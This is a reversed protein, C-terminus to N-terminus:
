SRFLERLATRLLGKEYFDNAILRRISGVPVRRSRTISRRRTWASRSHFLADRYTAWVVKWDGKRAHRIPIALYMALMWPACRLLLQWPVSKILLRISNRIGHYLVFDNFGGGSSVQGGHLAVPQDFYTPQYGLMVSRIALDTDEAYCFFDPDFCHGHESLLDELLRRSYIACGGTPGLLPADSTLRNSALLSRYMVIGLSDVCEPNELSMVRAACLDGYAHRLWDRLAPLAVADSNFCFIRAVQPDELLHRIAQDSAGSFGSNASNELLEAQLPCESIGAKLADLDSPASANDVVLIRHLGLQLDALSQLCALSHRATNFNIVVVALDHGPLPSSMADPSTKQSRM